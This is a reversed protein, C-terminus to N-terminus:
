KKRRCACRLAHDALREDAGAVGSYNPFDNVDIVVPGDTTERCDVSYYDLGFLEGCKLALAEMASAPFVHFAKCELSTSESEPAPSADLRSRKRLAWVDRGIVYLKLDYGNGPQFRQALAAPEPWSIRALEPASRVIRLPYRDDGSVAKLVIPYAEAPISRALERVPGVYAPPTPVGAASLTIAVEAKNHVSGIAARRNTTAVGQVEALHLLCLLGESRGRSIVLDMGQFRGKDGTGYAHSEPVVVTM